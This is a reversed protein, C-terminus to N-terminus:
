STQQDISDDVMKQLKSSGTYIAIDSIIRHTDIDTNSTVNIDIDKLGRGSLIKKINSKVSSANDRSHYDIAPANAVEPDRLQSEYFGFDSLLMGENEITKIEVDKLDVDPTWGKWKSTPLKHKKFYEQNSETKPADTGWALSLAKQLAPSAFRLIEQRKDPDREKVFEMFYEKDSTPLATIIQAWSSNQGIGYMTSEAAQKYILATHTWKGGEIITTDDGLANIKKNLAKMLDKKDDNMVHDNSSRLADKLKKLRKVAQQIKSEKEELRDSLDEVDVGEENKARRAAEHYLGMYKLYTLRDFYDEMEWKKKTREPIWEGKEGFLMRYAAGVAAGVAVGIGREKKFFHAVDMGISAGSTIEDFMSNGGTMFHAMTALQSTIRMAPFALKAKGPAILNAVAGGIFAGRDTFVYGMMAMHKKTKSIGDMDKVNEFLMRMATKVYGTQHIAREWAPLLFSDIPHDWSQYPTGYVQEAKYSELPSRVRLWQDSIWPLDAHAVLESVYGIVRQTTSLRGLVAPASTDNKKRAADGNQIMEEALNEGDIYVAVNTTHDADNNTQYAEDSDKAITITMGEHLYKGLVDSMSQNENSLVRAGAIKYITSGSRFKGYGLVESVTVNEYDLSKGVVNYNYFDHKRGQQSVRSRIEAMEEKLAPDTVTKKAIERWMKYEPSFPAIDALIKFRDFAGYDGYQDPHLQNLSEWGKGPLRMEGNKVITFPDGYRFRDPLWDPMNNMLPNLRNGRKYDPIFRRIIDATEGGAGGISSDWFARSLSTMDSANALFKENYNGFDFAESGMYGYIGTILRASTTAEKVFDSGKGTHILEQIMDPDSLLEMGQSPRFHSLKEPTIIGESEDFSDSNQAKGKIAENQQRLLNKPNFDHVLKALELKSGDDGNVYADLKLSEELSLDSAKKLERTTKAKNTPTHYVGLQGDPTQMIEGDRHFKEDSFLANKALATLSIPGYDDLLTKAVSGGGGGSGSGSGGGAGSGGGGSSFKTFGASIDEQPSYVGYSDSSTYLGGAAPSYQVSMAKTDETPADFATFRVPTATDGKVAIMNTESLDRAKAKINENLAHLASKIDVGNRLRDPHLEKQPKLIAGVTPNLVAGWPTGEAFMPASLVYPRDDAHKEELWYPDLLAKVPSFPNSPTPLWSHSWKDFYGDYLAKDKYDSNIRRAFSPAWYEIEGGRAEQVGGFTWWPAKRQPDYGSEYYKKREDYGMFNTKDGWYQMIPNVSKLENLWPTIGFSDLAKRAALDVNALGNAFAGSISTGTIEQSTDDAWELYTAGIAVPLIRKTFISTALQGVSGMSERSFGLGFTNMDDSLRSLLFYPMYTASTVNEMDDRGAVFQKFFLSGTDKIPQTSGNKISENLSRIVDFPSVAAKTHIVTNYAEPAFIDKDVERAETVSINENMMNHFEKRFEQDVADTNTNMVGEIRRVEDWIENTSRAAVHMEDNLGTRKQFLALQALRKTETAEKSPLISSASEVLSLVEKDGNDAAHQLFAEKGVETRLLEWFDASETGYDQTVLDSISGGGTSLRTRDTRLYMMNNQTGIPDHIYRSMLHKLDQNQFEEPDMQLIENLLEQDDKRRLSNFLGKARGDTNKELQVLSDETLSYTNEKLFKQARKANDLYSVAYGLNAQPDAIAEKFAKLEDENPNLLREFVNQRWDKDAFKKVVGTVGSLPSGSFHDRDQGIDLLRFALHSSEEFGTDGALQHQMRQAWGFRSSMARIGTAVPNDELGNDGIRYVEDLIRVYNGEVTKNKSGDKHVPNVIAALSPDKTGSGIFSMIPAKKAQELDRLKLIKGPITLAGVSLADQMIESPANFSYLEGQPSMRLAGSDPRLNMFREEFEKGQKAYHQRLEELLDLTDNQKYSGNKDKRLSASSKRIKARNALIDRVTAGHDGTIADVGKGLLSQNGWKKELYNIDHLKEYASNAAERVSKNFNQRATQNDNARMLDVLKGANQRQNEDFGARKYATQVTEEDHVSQSVERIFKMFRRETNLNGDHYNRFYMDKAPTILMNAEFLKGAIHGSNTKANELSHMLAFMTNPNDARLSVPTKSSAKSLTRWDKKIKHAALRVDDITMDETGLLKGFTKGTNKAFRYGKDLSKAFRSVSGTRYLIAASGLAAAAVGTGELLSKRSIPSATRDQNNAQQRKEEETM